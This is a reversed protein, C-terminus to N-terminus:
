LPTLNMCKHIDYYLDSTSLVHLNYIYESVPLYSPTNHLSPKRKHPKRKKKDLNDFSSINSSLSFRKCPSGTYAVGECMYMYLM